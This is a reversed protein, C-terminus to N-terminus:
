ITKKARGLASNINSQVVVLPESYPSSYVNSLRKIQCSNEDVKFSQMQKRFNVLSIASLPILSMESSNIIKSNGLHKRQYYNSAILILHPLDTTSKELSNRSRIVQNLHGPLFMDREVLLTSITEEPIEIELSGSSRTQIETPIKCYKEGLDEIVTALAASISSKKEERCYIMIRDPLVTQNFVSLLSRYAGAGGNAILSIWHNVM